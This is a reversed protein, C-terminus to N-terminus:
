YHRRGIGGQLPRRSGHFVQWHGPRTPGPQHLAAGGPINDKLPIERTSRPATHPQEGAVRHGKYGPRGKGVVEM